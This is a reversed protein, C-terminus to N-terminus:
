SNRLSYVKLYIWNRVVTNGILYFVSVPILVFESSLLPQMVNRMYDIVLQM